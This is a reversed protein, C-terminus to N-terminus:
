SYIGTIHFILEFYLKQCYLGKRYEMDSFTFRSSFCSPYTALGMRDVTRSDHGCKMCFHPVAGGCIICVQTIQSQESHHSTTWCSRYHNQTIQAAEAENQCRIWIRHGKPNPRRTVLNIFFFEWMKNSSSLIDTHKRWNEEEDTKATSKGLWVGVSWNVLSTM